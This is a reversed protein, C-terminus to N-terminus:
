GVLVDLDPIIDYIEGTEVASEFFELARCGNMDLKSAKKLVEKVIYLTTIGMVHWVFEGDEDSYAHLLATNRNCVAVVYRAILVDMGKKEVDSLLEKALAKGYDTWLTPFEPTNLMRQIEQNLKKANVKWELNEDKIFSEVM